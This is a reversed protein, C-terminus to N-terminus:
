WRAVSGLLSFFSARFSPCSAGGEAKDTVSLAAARHAAALRTNAVQACADACPARERAAGDHHRPLILLVRRVREGSQRYARCGVEGSTTRPRLDRDRM